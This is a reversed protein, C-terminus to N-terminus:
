RASCTSPPRAGGCSTPGSRARVGIMDAVILIPFARALDDIGDFSGREVLGAVMRDAKEDIETKLSRLARPSLNETLAARLRAHDPPDTTLSTGELARNM